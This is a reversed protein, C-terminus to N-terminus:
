YYWGRIIEVTPRHAASRMANVVQQGVGQSMVGIREVLEWPFSEHVLFEAQKGEKVEASRFDTAAVAPWDVEHLEGIESRFQAYFAGANSLSFAWLRRNGNAWAVVRHLDAELHIIPGQGGRYALEPHNACHIVYLMISRPCFYFPVYEGVHTGHHCTVPLRLRREKIGGMGITTGAGQRQAITADSWLCGDGVISPLRDVHVIHYIKPQAPPQPM